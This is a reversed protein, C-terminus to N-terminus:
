STVPAGRLDVVEPGPLLLQERAPAVLGPLAGLTIQRHAEPHTARQTRLMTELHAYVPALAPSGMYPRPRTGPLTHMVLGVRDLLMRVRVDLMAALWQAENVEATALVGHYLAAAVRSGASGLERRVGITSVDWTTAPDIGVAAAAEFADAAWPPECADALTKQPLPGPRLLRAWGLVGEGDRVALWVTADAYAGYAADLDEPEDGYREGLVQLECALVDPAPTGATLELVMEGRSRRTGAAVPLPVPLAVPLPVPLAVSAAAAGPAGCAGHEVARVARAVAAVAAEVDEVHTRFSGVALRLRLAGRVRATTVYVEGSQQLRAAVAATVADGARCRATAVALDPAPGAVLGPVEGLLGHAHRALLVKEALAAAFADRGALQLPLWVRLARFHRTLEPGLEAPSAPAGPTDPVLYDADLSFAQQLLRRDRVLVAGTGYPLFLTKHPDVVVSDARELGALVERGQPCLAFLGGYAADVHLWLGEAAAVDALAPLPDVAGAGTSGATAVLLFPRLGAARDARVAAELAEVDLRDRGDLTLRRVAGGALGAVRLAVDVSHHTNEALYIVPRDAALGPGAAERAAVLATINAATGGSTLVGAAGTGLGVADALWRVVLTELAAAGPSVSALGAYRNAAAALLDALAATPLGGSPIYGLYRPSTTAVGPAEVVRSLVHLVEAPDRPAAPVGYAALAGAAGPDPLWAPATPARDLFTEVHEVVLDTLRRRQPSPPDLPAALRRLEDLQERLGDPGGAPLHGPDERITVGTM